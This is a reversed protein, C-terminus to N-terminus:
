LNEHIINLKTQLVAKAKFTSLPSVYIANPALGSMATQFLGCHIREKALSSLHHPCVANRVAM